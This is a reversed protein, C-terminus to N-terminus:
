FPTVGAENLTREAKIRAARTTSRPQKRKPMKMSRAATPRPQDPPPPLPATTTHAGPYLLTAGPKTTYTHGTPTTIDLTGDPHQLETWGPWFTKALHHKRCRCATNSPHTPGIPWPVTHDIDTQEAPRDCGPHRCTLDRARAYRDLARSPRYRPEPEPGPTALPHVLAGRTILDALQAAPLLKAGPLAPILAAAAPRSAPAPAADATEGQADRGIDEDIGGRLVPDPHQDGPPAPAGPPVTQPGPRPDPGDPGDPGPGGGGGTDGDGDTDEYDIGGHIDPDAHATLATADAYIHVVFRTAVPDPGTAAPCDPNGCRCPLRTARAALAGVADARRQARTRPDHDCVSAALAAVAQHLLGADATSLRGWVSTTGTQDDPDGITFDRSRLAARTRRVGAPDHRAVAADVAQELKYQSLPGWGVAADAIDADVAALADPDTVLATRGAITTITRVPLQGAMFLAGVQPLRDRLSIALDMLGSARGHSVTLACSLEAACADWDDCAWDPHEDILRRRTFEAIAALRRAEAAAAVRGWDCVADILAAESLGSLGSLGPLADPGVMSMDFMNEVSAM